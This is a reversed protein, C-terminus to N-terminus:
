SKFIINNYKNINNNIKIINLIFSNNKIAKLLITM